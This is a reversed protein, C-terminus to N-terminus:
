PRVGGGTDPRYRGNHWSWRTAHPRLGPRSEALASGARHHEVFRVHGSHVRDAVLQWRYELPLALEIRQDGRPLAVGVRCEAWAGCDPLFGDRERTAATVIWTTPAGPLSVDEVSAWTDECSGAACATFRVHAGDRTYPTSADARASGDDADRARAPLLSLAALLLRLALM